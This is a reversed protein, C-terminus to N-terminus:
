ANHSRFLSFPGRAEELRVALDLLLEEEYPRAVLQVGVPMGASDFTYPITMAPFGLLNFPTAPRVADMLEPWSLSGHRFANVRAVPLLLISAGSLERLVAARLRDRAALSEVLEDGTVPPEAAAEPHRNVRGFFFWWLEHARELWTPECPEVPIGLDTLDDWAARLAADRGFSEIVRVRVGQLNPPLLPVPASFPDEADYGALASFLLRVGDATRAM